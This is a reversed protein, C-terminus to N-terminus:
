LCHVVFPANVYAAVSPVRYPYVCPRRAAYSFLQALPASNAYQLRPMSAPFVHQERARIKRWGQITSVIVSPNVKQKLLRAVVKFKHLNVQTSRWIFDIIFDVDRLVYEKSYGVIELLEHKNIPKRKAIELIMKNPLVYWCSEDEKRSVKDRWEYLGAVLGLQEEDLCADSLGYLSLYSTERDFVEVCYLRKCVDYSRKYVEIMLPDSGISGLEKRMSDYIFLLYHTDERAYKLMDVPLPRIRWDSSQYEKNSEIGCYYKLLFALSNRELQLVQSSRMTDFLNVVYISFDRQLWMIDNDSGHIVKKKTPDMFIDRLYEGMHQRLKLTDVIFDEFRTSIQMLCTMGQYSRYSNHELDVAFVDVRSLKSALYGLDEVTDVLKLPTSEMPLPPSIISDFESDPCTIFDLPDFVEVPHIPRSGDRSVPLLTHSFPKLNDIHFHFNYEIQPKSLNPVHFPITM